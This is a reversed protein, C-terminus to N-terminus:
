SRFLFYMWDEDIEEEENKDFVYRTTLGGIVAGIVGFLLESVTNNETISKILGLKVSWVENLWLLYDWIM